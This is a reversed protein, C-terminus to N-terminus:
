KSAIVMALWFGYLVALIGFSVLISDVAKITSRSPNLDLIIGRLGSLSHIVVSALFIIEMTPIIPNKYYAIVNKYTMLGKQALFHNVIFHILLLVIIIPGTVIKILWITSNEGKERLESNNEVATM